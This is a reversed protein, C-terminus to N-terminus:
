LLQLALCSPPSTSTPSPPSKFCEPPSPPRSSCQSSRILPYPSLPSLSPCSHLSHRIEVVCSDVISTSSPIYIFHPDKSCFGCSQCTLSCLQQMSLHRYRKCDTRWELCPFPLSSPLSLLCSSPCATFPLQRRLKCPVCNLRISLVSLEISPKRPPFSRGLAFKSLTNACWRPM